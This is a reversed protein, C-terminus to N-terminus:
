RWCSTGCHIRGSLCRRWPGVMIGWWPLVLSACPKQHEDEGAGVTTDDTTSHKRRIRPVIHNHMHCLLCSCDCAPRSPVNCKKKYYIIRNNTSLAFFRCICSETYYVFHQRYLYQYHSALYPTKFDRYKERRKKRWQITQARDLDSRRM